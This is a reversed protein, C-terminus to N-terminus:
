GPLWDSRRVVLRRQQGSLRVRLAGSLRDAPARVDCNGHSEPASQVAATVLILPRAGVTAHGPNRACKLRAFRSPWNRWRMPDPRCFGAVCVWRPWSNTRTRRAQRSRVVHWHVHRNGHQSSLSVLYLRETPVVQQVAQGVRYVWRQLQVYERESLDGIVREVHRHPCVLTYGRLTPYRNLFVLVDTDEYTMETAGRYEPVGDAIACVFCPGESSRREYSAHDFPLRQSMSTVVFRRLCHM